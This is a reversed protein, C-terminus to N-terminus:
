PTLAKSQGAKLMEARETKRAMRNAEQGGARRAELASGMAARRASHNQNAQAVRCDQRGAGLANVLAEPLSIEITEPM